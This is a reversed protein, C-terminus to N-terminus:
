GGGLGVLGLVAGLREAVRGAQGVAARPVRVVRVILMTPHTVRLRHSLILKAVTTTTPITLPILPTPLLTHLPLPLIPMTHQSALPQVQLILTPPSHRLALQARTKNLLSSLLHAAFVVVCVYLHIIASSPPETAHNTTSPRTM